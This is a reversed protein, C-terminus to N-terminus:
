SLFLNIGHTFNIVTLPINKLRGETSEQQIAKCYNVLILLYM